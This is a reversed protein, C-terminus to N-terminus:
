VLVPALTSISNQRKESWPSKAHTGKYNVIEVCNVLLGTFWPLTKIPEENNRVPPVFERLIDQSQLTKFRFDYPELRSNTVTTATDISVYLGNFINTRSTLSLWFVSHRKRCWLVYKGDKNTKIVKNIM